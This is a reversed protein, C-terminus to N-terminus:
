SWREQRCGVLVAMAHRYATLSERGAETQALPLRVARMIGKAVLVLQVIVRLTNYEVWSEQKQFFEFRNLHQGRLKVFMDQHASSLFLERLVHYGDELTGAIM